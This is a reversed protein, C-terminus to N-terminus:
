TEHARLHTYSVPGFGCTGPFFLTAKGNKIGDVREGPAWSVKGDSETEYTHTFRGEISSESGTQCVPNVGFGGLDLEFADYRNHDVRGDLVEPGGPLAGPDVRLGHTGLRISPDVQDVVMEEGIVERPCLIDERSCFEGINLLLAQGDLAGFDAYGEYNLAKAARVTDGIHLKIVFSEHFVPTYVGRVDQEINNFDSQPETCSTFGGSLTLAVLLYLARKYINM